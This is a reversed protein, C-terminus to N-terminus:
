ARQCVRDRGGSKAEYLAADAAAILGDPAGDGDPRATAVGISLTVHGQTPSAAHPIDLAAVTARLEEAKVRGAALDCEPMLCSFEEGGYRAVLDHSRGFCAKLAGAVRQLCADGSQHGYHDNFRKFHDIDIMLLTLPSASRRCRRWEAQLAEDFRRRNAVGTLGDVFALARLLDSQAKLTLHTKVRARVVAPNVPKSIFDVGGAELARTEDLPDSQATVFIVPIDRTAPDAKLRRCTELGDMGPMVVDLLVLDPLPNDRCFDLAPQGGTAMFVEHDAHFIHYLTQINIPQDDVVLLRPRATPADPLPTTM